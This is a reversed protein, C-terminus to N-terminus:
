KKDRLDEFKIIESQTIVGNDNFIEVIISQENEVLNQVEEVSYKGDIVKFDSFLVEFVGSGEPITNWMESSEMTVTKILESIYPDQIHIRIGYEQEPGLGYDIVNISFHMVDEDSNQINSISVVSEEIIPHNPKKNNECGWLIILSLCICIIFNRLKSGM